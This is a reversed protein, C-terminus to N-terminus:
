ASIDHQGVGFEVLGNHEVLDAGALRARRAALAERM